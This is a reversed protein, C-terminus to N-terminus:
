KKKDFAYKVQQAKQLFYKNIRSLWVLINCYADTKTCTTSNKKTNFAYKVQQAKQLLYKNCVLKQQTM